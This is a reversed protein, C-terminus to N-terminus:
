QECVVRAKAFLEAAQLGQLKAPPAVAGASSILPFSILCFVAFLGAAMIAAHREWVPM